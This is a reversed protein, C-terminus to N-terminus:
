WKMLNFEDLNVTPKNRFMAIIIALGVSVEAAAVAMVMFSFIQGDHQNLYRDFAILSINVANLMIEVCMFVVIANRRILVGLVGISFLTASLILYHSLPVM